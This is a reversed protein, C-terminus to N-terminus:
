QLLRVRRLGHLLCRSRSSPEPLLLLSLRAQSSSRARSYLEPSPCSSTVGFNLFQTCSHAPRDRSRGAKNGFFKFRRQAFFLRNKDDFHDAFELAICKNSRTNKSCMTEGQIRSRCTYKLAPMISRRLTRPDHRLQNESAAHISALVHAQRFALAITSPRLRSTSKGSFSGFNDRRWQWIVAVSFPQMM